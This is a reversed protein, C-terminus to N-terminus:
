NAQPRISEERNSRIAADLDKGQAGALTKMHLDLQFFFGTLEKYGRFSRFLSAVQQFLKHQKAKLRNEM